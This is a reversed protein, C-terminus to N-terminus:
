GREDPVPLRRLYVCQNVAGVRFGAVLRLLHRTPMVMTDGLTLLCLIDALLWGALEGSPHSHLCAAALIRKVAYTQGFLVVDLCLSAQVVTGNLSWGHVHTVVVRLRSRLTSLLWHSVKSFLTLRNDHVLARTTGEKAHLLVHRETGRGVDRLSCM